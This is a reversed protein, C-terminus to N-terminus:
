TTIGEGPLYRDLWVRFSARHAPHVVNPATEGTRCRPCDCPRVLGPGPASWHMEPQPNKRIALTRLDADPDRSTRRVLRIRVETDDLGSLDGGNEAASARERKLAEAEFAEHLLELERDSVENEHKRDFIVWRSPPPPSPDDVRNRVPAKRTM